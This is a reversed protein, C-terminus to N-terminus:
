SNIIEDKYKPLLKVFKDVTEKFGVYSVGGAANTHGGGEFNERAFKNVSFDGRSRFSLRIENEYEKLIVAFSVGKISLGYNVVGETDGKQYKFKKLDSQSLAILVTNYERFVQMGESLCYGLLKIRNETNTDNINTYVQAVNAGKKILEAVIEHTRATTSPFRFSGTDTMLGSYLCDAADGDICNAAGIMEAFEYVLQATSSATTDSYQYDVFSEPQPHHDIMIKVATSQEVAPALNKIRGLGNYDLCFLLTAHKILEEAEDSKSEHQIITDEGKMWKLFDPYDDPTIVQVEHNLRSLIHYLGLSSGIADGDPSRHTTIVIKQPRSLLEKVTELKEMRIKYIAFSGIILCCVPNAILLSKQM